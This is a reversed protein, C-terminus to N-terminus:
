ISLYTSATPYQKFNRCKIIEEVAVYSAHHKSVILTRKLLFYIRSVIREGIMDYWVSYAIRERTSNWQLSPPVIASATTRRSAPMRPIWVLNKKIENFCFPDYRPAWLHKIPKICKIRHVRADNLSINWSRLSRLM